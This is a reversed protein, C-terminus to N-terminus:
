WAEEFGRFKAHIRTKLLQSMICRIWRVNSIALCQISHYVSRAIKLFSIIFVYFMQSTILLTRWLVDKTIRLRANCDSGPALRRITIPVVLM